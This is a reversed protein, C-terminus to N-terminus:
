FARKKIRYKFCRGLSQRLRLIGAPRKFFLHVVLGNFDLLVWSGSQYGETHHLRIGNLYLKEEVNDAMAKLQNINNGSAIVFCEAVSSLNRLDLVKIDEANKIKWHRKPLKEPM